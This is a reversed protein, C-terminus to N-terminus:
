KFKFKEQMLKFFVEDQSCSCQDAALNPQVEQM